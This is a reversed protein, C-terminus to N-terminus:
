NLKKLVRSKMEETLYRKVPKTRTQSSGTVIAVQGKLEM